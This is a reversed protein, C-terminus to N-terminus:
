WFGGHRYNLRGGPTQSPTFKPEKQSIAQIVTSDFHDHHKHPEPASSITTRRNGELKGSVLLEFDVPVDDPPHELQVTM